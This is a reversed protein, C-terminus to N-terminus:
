SLIPGGSSGFETSCNYYIDGNDINIIKGFSLSPEDLYQLICVEKGKYNENNYDDIDLYYNIQDINPKIEIITIDLDKNTYTKRSDTIKIKKINVNDFSIEIIDNIKINNQDLVHNNTILVPLLKFQDPYFMKCFCGTGTGKKTIIKCVCKELLSLINKNKKATIIPQNTKIEKIYQKDNSNNNYNIVNNPTNSNIMMKNNVFNNNNIGLQINNNFNNINAMLQNSYTNTRVYNPNQQNIINQYNPNLIPIKNNTNYYNLQNNNNNLPNNYIYPPYFRYNVNTFNQNQYTQNFPINYM